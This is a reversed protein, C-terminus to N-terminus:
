YSQVFDMAMDVWQKLNNLDRQITKVDKLNIEFNCGRMGDKAIALLKKLNTRNFGTCITNAPNPRWSM